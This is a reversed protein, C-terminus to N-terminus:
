LLSCSNHALKDTEQSKVSLEIAEDDRPSDPQCREFPLRGKNNLIRPNAKNYLLVHSLDADSNAVMHLATDGDANQANVDIGRDIIERIHRVLGRRSDNCGHRKYCEILVILVTRGDTTTINIDFGADLISQAHTYSMGGGHYYLHLATLGKNNKLNVNCRNAMLIDFLESSVSLHVVRMLPTFGEADQADVDAGARILIRAIVALTARISELQACVCVMHLATWKQSSLARVEEPNRAIRDEIDCVAANAAIMHLLKSCGNTQAQGEADQSLYTLASFPIYNDYQAHRQNFIKASIHDTAM